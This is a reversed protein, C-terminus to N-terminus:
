SFFVLHIYISQKDTHKNTDLLRIKKVFGMVRQFCLLFPGSFIDFNIM